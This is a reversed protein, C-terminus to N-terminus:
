HWVQPPAAPLGPVVEHHSWPQHKAETDPDHAEPGGGDDGGDDYHDCPAGFELGVFFGNCTPHFQVDLEGDRWAKMVLPTGISGLASGMMMHIGLRIAKRTRRFM